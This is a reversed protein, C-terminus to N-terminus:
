DPNGKQYSPIDSLKEFSTYTSNLLYDHAIYLIHVTHTHTHTQCYIEYMYM